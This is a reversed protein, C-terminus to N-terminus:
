RGDAVTLALPQEEGHKTGASGRLQAIELSEVVDRIVFVVTWQCNTAEILVYFSSRAVALKNAADLSTFRKPECCRKTIRIAVSDETLRGM